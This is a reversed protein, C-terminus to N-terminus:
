NMFPCIPLNPRKLIFINQEKFSVTFFIFLCVVSWLFHKYAVHGVFFYVRCVYLSEESTLMLDWGDLWFSSPVSLSGVLFSECAAALSLGFV